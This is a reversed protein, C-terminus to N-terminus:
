SIRKWNHGGGNKCPCGGYPMDKSKVVLGCKSCQYLRNGVEGLCRWNHGGGGPCSGAFPKDESEVHTHCKPCYYNKLKLLQTYGPGNLVFLSVVLILITCVIFTKARM